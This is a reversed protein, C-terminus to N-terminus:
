SLARDRQVVHVIQAPLDRLGSSLFTPYLRVQGLDELPLWRFVLQPDRDEKRGLFEPGAPLSDLPRISYYLSIEHYPEDLGFFNEVLWLLREAEVRVGIEETFERCLAELSTEGFEVRGGPLAWFDDDPARQILVCGNRLLVGAARYNFVGEAVRFTLM